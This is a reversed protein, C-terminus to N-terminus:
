RGKKEAAKRAAEREEAWINLRAAELTRFLSFVHPTVEFGALRAYTEVGEYRMGTAGNMGVNWQSQCNQYLEWAALAAPTLPPTPYKEDWACSELRM